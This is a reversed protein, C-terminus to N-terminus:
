TRVRWARGGVDVPQIRGGVGEVVESYVPLVLGREDHSGPLSRPPPEDVSPVIRQQVEVQQPTLHATCSNAAASLLFFFFKDLMFDLCLNGSCELKKVNTDQFM